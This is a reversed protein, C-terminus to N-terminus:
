GDLRRKKSLSLCYTFCFMKKRVSCQRRLWFRVVLNFKRASFPQHIKTRYTGCPWSSDKEGPKLPAGVSHLCATFDGDKGLTAIVKPSVRTMIHMNCVVYPSDTIEIGIKAMPSGLPAMSFPIIYMTRNRMCGQYLKRMTCKLQESDVWNKTPGADDGTQHASLLAIRLELLM